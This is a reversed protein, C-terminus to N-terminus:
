SVEIHLFHKYKSYKQDTNKLIRVSYPGSFSWIHVSKVCHKAFRSTNWDM